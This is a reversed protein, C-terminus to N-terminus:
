EGARVLERVPIPGDSLRHTFDLPQWGALEVHVEIPLERWADSADGREIATCSARVTAGADTARRGDDLLVRDALSELPVSVAILYLDGGHKAPIPCRVESRGALTLGPVQGSTQTGEWFSGLEFGKPGAILEVPSPQTHPSMGISIGFAVNSGLRPERSRVWSPTSQTFILIPNSRLARDLLLGTEDYVDVFVRIESPMEISITRTTLPCTVEFPEPDEADRRQDTCRARYTGAPLRTFRHGGPGVRASQQERDGASWDQNGPAGIRWLEVQGEAPWGTQSDLLFLLLECAGEELPDPPLEAQDFSLIEDELPEEPVPLADGQLPLQSDGNALGGDLVREAPLEFQEVSGDPDPTTAQSVPLVPQAGSSSGPPGDVPRRLWSYLLLGLVLGAGLLLGLRRM